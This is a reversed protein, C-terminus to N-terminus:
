HGNAAGNEKKASSKQISETKDVVLKGDVWVRAIDRDDGTWVWKEFVEATSDGDQVFMGPSAPQVHLADFRMGPEFNGVDFGVVMGGGLTALYWAEALSLSRKNEGQMVLARSVYVALRLQHLVGLAAGGSCDSGLGLKIGDDLLRVVNCLGSNLHLNSNPCHAIGCGRQKVLAREDASLHVAHALVTRPGLLGFRDYAEAYSCGFRERVAAIEARNESIHTQVRLDQEHALEGLHAMLADSCSLAFRPTLIPQVADTAPFDDVFERTRAFAVGPGPESYGGLDMSCKGVLARQGAQTCLQALRWSAENHLTAYYCSTTTGAALTRAVVAAYVREARSVDAFTAELPFTYKDLWALLELEAGLGNNPYQPAHTHTDVMGPTLFGNAIHVVSALTTSAPLLARAEAASSVARKSRVVGDVVELLALPLIELEDQSLSHAVPAIYWM